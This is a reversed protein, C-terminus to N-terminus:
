PDSVKRLIRIDIWYIFVSSVVIATIAGKLNVMVSNGISVLLIGYSNYPDPMGASPNSLVLLIVTIKLLLM